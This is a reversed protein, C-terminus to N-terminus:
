QDRNGLGFGFDVGQKRQGKAWTERKGRDGGAEM